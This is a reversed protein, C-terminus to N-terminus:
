VQSMDVGVIEVRLTQGELDLKPRLQGLEEAASRLSARIERIAEVRGAADLVPKGSTPDILASGRQDFKAPLDAEALVLLQEVTAQLTELRAAQDAIWLTSLQVNAADRVRQIEDGFKSAFQSIASQTVGCAAGIEGQTLQGEALLRVALAHYRRKLLYRVPREDDSTM